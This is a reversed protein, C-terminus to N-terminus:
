ELPFFFYQSLSRVSSPLIVLYLLLWLFLYIVHNNHRDLWTFWFSDYNWWQLVLSFWLGMLIWLFLSHLWTTYLSYTKMILKGQVRKYVLSCMVFPWQLGFLCHLFSMIGSVTVAAPCPRDSDAESVSAADLCVGGNVFVGPDVAQINSGALTPWVWKFQKSIDTGCVHLYRGLRKEGGWVTSPGDEFLRPQAPSSSQEPDRRRETHELLDPQHLQFGM